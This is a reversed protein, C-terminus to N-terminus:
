GRVAGVNHHINWQTRRLRPGRRPERVVASVRRRRTTSPTGVSIACEFTNYRVVWDNVANRGSNGGVITLCPAGDQWAFSDNLVPHAFLNNELTVPGFAPGDVTNQAVWDIQGCDDFRNRRWVQRDGGTVAACELHM